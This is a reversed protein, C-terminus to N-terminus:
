EDLDLWTLFVLTVSCEEGGTSVVLPRVNDKLFVTVKNDEAASEADEVDETNDTFDVEKLRMEVREKLVTEKAELLDLAPIILLEKFHEGKGLKEADPVKTLTTGCESDRAITM